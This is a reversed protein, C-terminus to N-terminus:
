AQSLAQIALAYIETCRLLHDIEMYEDPQHEVKPMGPFSPGFAVANRFAKAFTTGGMGLPKADKEGTYERYVNLLKAIYPNDEPFSLSDLSDVINIEGQFAQLANIILPRVSDLKESAPFRLDIKLNIKKEDLRIQAPSITLKGTLEDETNIGLKEGFYDLGIKEAYVTLFEKQGPTIELESLFLILQSIANKGQDCNFAHASQGQSILTPNADEQFRIDLGTRNVFEALKPKIQELQDKTGTLVAECSDPVINFSQGGNMQKLKLGAKDALKGITDQNIMLELWILGKEAIVLPFVSDPIFSFDPEKIKKLLEPTTNWTSEEDTGIIIRIKAEPRKGSEKVAKLAYLVAIAPGKDDIAGLGYIRNDQIQGEFPPHQWGSGEPVTDLHVAIGITESGEGYEILGGLNDIRSAAFGMKRGLDLYFDLAQRVSDQGTVSNIKILERLSSVIENQWSAVLEKSKQM